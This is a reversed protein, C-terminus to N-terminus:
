RDRRENLHFPQYIRTHLDLDLALGVHLLLPCTPGASAPPAEWFAVLDHAKHDFSM